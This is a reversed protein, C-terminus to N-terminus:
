HSSFARQRRDQVQEPEITPGGDNGTRAPADACRDRNRQGLGTGIHDDRRAARGVDRPTASALGHARGVLRLAVPRGAPSADGLLERLRRDVVEAAEVDPHVVGAPRVLATHPRKRVSVSACIRSM